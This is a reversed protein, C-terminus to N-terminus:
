PTVGQQAKFEVRQSNTLSKKIRWEVIVRYQKKSLSGANNM